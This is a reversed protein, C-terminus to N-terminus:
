MKFVAPNCLKCERFQYKIEALNSITRQKTQKPCHLHLLCVPLNQQYTHQHFTLWQWMLWIYSPFSIGIHYHQGAKRWIAMHKLQVLPPPMTASQNISQLASLIAKLMSIHNTCVSWSCFASTILQKLSYFWM